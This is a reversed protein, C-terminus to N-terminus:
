KNDMSRWLEFLRKREIKGVYNKPIEKVEIIQYPVKYHELYKGLYEKLVSDSFCQNGTGVVFLVPVHGRVGEPDDVGICACESVGGYDLATNEIELPSVKEGGINMVDNNRGALYIYGDEDIYGLDESYFIGDELVQETAQKDNFYGVMNMDGCIALHGIHRRSSVIERHAEDVINVSVNQVAQGIADLKDTNQDLRMYITRASETAGYSNYLRIGQLQEALVLRMKRDLPSTCFEIKELTGLLLDLRQRTQFYLIRLAAPVLYLSNCHNERINHNMKKLSAIGDQLVATSGKYLIARLTTLGFAHHLPMTLLNRDNQKMEGGNIVNCAGAVENKHSLIVGKPTGTTGTTYLIDAWAGATFTGKPCNSGMSQFMEYTKVGSDAHNLIVLQPMLGQLLPSLSLVTANRDVVISVAGLWHVAFYVGVFCESYDAALIVKDGNKVGHESLQAAYSLIRHSLEGYTVKSGDTIIAIKDSLHEGYYMVAEVVSHFM